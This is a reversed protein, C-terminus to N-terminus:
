IEVDTMKKPKDITKQEKKEEKIYYAEKPAEM